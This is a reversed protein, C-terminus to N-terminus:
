ALELSEISSRDIDDVIDRSDLGVCAHRQSLTPQTAERLVHDSVPGTLVNKVSWHM